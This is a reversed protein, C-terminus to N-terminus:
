LLHCQLMVHLGFKVEVKVVNEAKETSHRRQTVNLTIDSIGNNVCGSLTPPHLPPLDTVMPPLDGPHKEQTKGLLLM